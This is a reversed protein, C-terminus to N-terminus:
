KTVLKDWDMTSFYRHKKVDDIGKYIMKVM